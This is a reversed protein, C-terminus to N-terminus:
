LYYNNFIEGEIDIIEKIIIALGNELIFQGLYEDVKILNNTVTVYKGGNKKLDPIFYTVTIKPKEKINEKLIQLKNDLIQKLEEGKEIRKDTLRATEKVEDDYGTLAAFPAFQAARAEISMQPHKKSVHHPMNIINDYKGM